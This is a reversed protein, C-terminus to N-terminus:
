TSQTLVVDSGPLHSCYSVSYQFGIYGTMPIQLNIVRSDFLINEHFKTTSECIYEFILACLKIL